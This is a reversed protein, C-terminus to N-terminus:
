EETILNARAAECATTCDISTAKFLGNFFYARDTTLYHNFYRGKAVKEQDYEYLRTARGFAKRDYVICKYKTEYDSVPVVIIKGFLEEKTLNFVNALEVVDMLNMVDDPVLIRIDEIPTSSIYDETTLDNNNSKLHNYANRLAYIVGKMNAPKGGIITSYDVVEDTGLLADRKTNFDDKGEGQTLTDIIEAVVSDVNGDEKLVARVEDPRTTTVYQVSNWNNFYKVLVEADHAERSFADKDFAQKEAMKIVAEEVVKGKDVEYDYFADELANANKASRITQSALTEVMVYPDNAVVPFTDSGTKSTVDVTTIEGM